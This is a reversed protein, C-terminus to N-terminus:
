PIVAQAASFSLTTGLVNQLSITETISFRMVSTPANLYLRITRTEAVDLSALAMPVPGSRAANYTVTGTGNLTRFTLSDLNVNRAHGTGTNTLRLDIWFTGDPNRGKGAVIASIRPSGVEVRVTFSGIASPGIPGTNCNV